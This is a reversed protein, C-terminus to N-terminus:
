ATPIIKKTIRGLADYVTQTQPKSWDASWTGGAAVSRFYPMTQAAAQGLANYNLDVVVTQSANMGPKQTQVAQGLGNYYTWEDQYIAGGNGDGATDSRVSHKVRLPYLSPDKLGFADYPTDSYTISESAPATFPAGPKRVEKLRGFEDYGYRTIALNPDTSEQLQGARGSGGAEAGYLGYYRFTTTLPTEGVNQPTVTQSFPYVPVTYGASADRDFSTTTITGNPTKQWM